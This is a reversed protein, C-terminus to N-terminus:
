INKGIYLCTYILRFVSKRSIKLYLLIGTDINFFMTDGDISRKSFNTTGWEGRSTVEEPRTLLQIEKLHNRPLNWATRFRILHM